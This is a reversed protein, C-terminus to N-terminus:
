LRAGQFQQTWSARSEAAHAGAIRGFVTGATLGSGGPYNSFFLGGLLEGCCYLGGIPQRTTDSMVQATDPNVDLGGFTFTVASTIEVATFPAKTLPRAWNSKALALRKKSSQTSLGDKEAPNFKLDPHEATFVEVAENYDQITEVFKDKNTLGRPILKEALAEISEARINTTVEDAYEEKRLWSAGEADWVQYAKSSPQKLVEVGFIAYTFNRLDFGEDVFREGDLNLMLGLPYGSKTFQNTLVRDGGNRPSGADWCTSHCSSYNGATKAGLQRAMRHGDGTNFPSGRVHALDWGPGLYQARLAPDASFGGCALVVGGEAQIRQKRGDKLVEVGLVRGSEEDSILQLAPTSWWVEVGNKKATEVHWKVLEKGGGRFMTVMGGWFQFFRDKTEYAQRNFSLVFKGGNDAIWQIAGRSENVLKEALRPDSRGKTVRMLDKTFADEPYGQVDVRKLLDESLGKRGTDVDHLIPKLDELDKFAYRFAGATYFTNGGNDSEPAKEVVLVSAGHQAATTAASFGANGGGVIIVEYVADFPKM